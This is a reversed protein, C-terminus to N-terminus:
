QAIERGVWGIFCGVAFVACIFMWLFSKPTM